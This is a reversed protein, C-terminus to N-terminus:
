TFHNVQLVSRQRYCMFCHLQKQSSIFHTAEPAIACLSYSWDVNYIIDDTIFCQM